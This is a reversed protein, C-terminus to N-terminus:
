HDHCADPEVPEYFQEPREFFAPASCIPASIHGSVTDGDDYTFRFDASARLHPVLERLVAQGFMASAGTEGPSIECQADLARFIALSYPANDLGHHGPALYVRGEQVPEGDTQVLAVAFMTAGRPMTGAAIHGCLNPTDTQVLVLTPQTDGVTMIGQMFFSYKPNLTFGGVSGNFTNVDGDEDSAQVELAPPAPIVVRGSEPLDLPASSSAGCAAVSLLLAISALRM